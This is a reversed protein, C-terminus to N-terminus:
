KKLLKEHQVIQDETFRQKIVKAPNGGVISYPSVDKTVISGAGIISGKKIIVPSLIISGHGIWVDDEIIIKYKDGRESDWISKGIINYQHDDSNLFAVNDAVAVKSGIEVDCLFTCRKGIGVCDGLIIHNHPSWFTTSYQCHINDGHEIWRYRIKFLIFNRIRNLIHNKQFSNM